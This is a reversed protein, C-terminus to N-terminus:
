PLPCNFSAKPVPVAATIAKILSSFYQAYKPSYQKTNHILFLKHHLPLDNYLVPFINIEENMHRLAVTLQMSSMFCAALGAALVIVVAHQRKLM